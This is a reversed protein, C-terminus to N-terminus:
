FRSEIWRGASSLVAISEQESLSRVHYMRKLSRKGMKESVQTLPQSCFFVSCLFICYITTPFCYTENIMSYNQACRRSLCILRCTNYCDVFFIVFLLLYTFIVSCLFVLHSVSHGLVYHLFAFTTCCVERGKQWPDEVSTSSHASSLLPLLLTVITHM